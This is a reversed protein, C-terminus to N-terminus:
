TNPTEFGLDRTPDDWDYNFFFRDIDRHINDLDQNWVKLHNLNHEWDVLSFCGSLASTGALLLAVTLISKM